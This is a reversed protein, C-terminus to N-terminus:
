DKRYRCGQWADVGIPLGAAWGPVIEMIEAFRDLPKTGQEVEAIIEDHVTMVCPCGEQEVRLMAEALLERATAQVANEVLISTKLVRRWWQGSDSTMSTIVKKSEGWPTERVELVPDPYALLRGNPLRMHLFRGRVGFSIAGFSFAQKPEAVASMAAAMLGRWFMVIESHALRWHTKVLDCATLEEQSAKEEPHREMYDRALKQSWQIQDPDSREMAPGVIDKLNLRYVKAFNVFSGIGGGFGFALVQVKGCDREVSPKGVQEYPVGLTIAAELRYLDQGSRFGDLVEESGALWALVRAEIQSFDGVLFEKGPGAQIVSRLTSSAVQMPCGLRKVDELDGLTLATLGAEGMGKISGRPYNHPQVLRGSWRGTGAGHYLLTGRVRSDAGACRRMAEYKATSSLSAAQRIRLVKEVKADLGPRGLAEQVTNKRLDPLELGRVKLWERTKAVQKTSKLLGFTEKELDAQLEAEYAQIKLIIEEIAWLDVGLGRDNIRQDMRWVELEAPSLDPLAQDLCYEAEVDQICYACLAAFDAPDEHWEGARKRNRGLPKCMLNILRKGALDKQVPLGLAKCAGDLSRPLAMAAAKAATCRWKELPIDPFGYRTMVHRWIAREFQANHARIEDAVLVAAELITRSGSKPTWLWPEEDDVKVALCLVDTSEDEAYRYAGCKRLDVRSRTEFDITLKM